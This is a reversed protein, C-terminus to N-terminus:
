RSNKKLLALAEKIKALSQDHDGADHLKESEDILNRIKNKEPDSLKTKALVDKGEKILKPCTRAWLPQASFLSLAVAIIGAFRKMGPESVWYTQYKKSILVSSPQATSLRLQPVKFVKIL